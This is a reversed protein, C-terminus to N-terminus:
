ALPMDEKLAAAAALIERPVLIANSLLWPGKHDPCHHWEGAPTWRWADEGGARIRRFVIGEPTKTVRLTM